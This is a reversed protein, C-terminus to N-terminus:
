KRCDSCLANFTFGVRKANSQMSLGNTRFIAMALTLQQLAQSPLDVRVLSEAYERLCAVLQVSSHPDRDAALKRIQVAETFAQELNAPDRRLSFAEGQLELADALNSEEGSLGCSVLCRNLSVAADM